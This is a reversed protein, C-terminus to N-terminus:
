DNIFYNLVKMKKKTVQYNFKNVVSKRCINKLKSHNKLSWNIGDCISNINKNKVIWGNIRHSIIEKIGGVDVSVNLVRCCLSELISYPLNEYRSLTLNVKVCSYLNRLDNDNEITLFEVNKFRKKIYDTNYEGLILFKIKKNRKFKELIKILLDGGKRFNSSGGRAIFLVYDFNKELFLYKNAQNFTKNTWFKHNIPYYIQNINNANTLKIYENKLYNTSALIMVNKRVLLDIKKKQFYKSIYNIISNEKSHYNFHYLGRLPWEDYLFIIFKYNPYKKILNYNFIMNSYNIFFVKKQDNKSKFFNFFQPFTIAIQDIRKLFILKFIFNTLKYIKFKLHNFYNKKLKSLDFAPGKFLLKYLRINERSAKYGGRSSIQDAIHCFKKM